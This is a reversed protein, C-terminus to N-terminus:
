VRVSHREELADTQRGLGDLLRMAAGQTDLLLRMAESQSVMADSYFDRAVADAPLYPLLSLLAVTTNSITEAVGGIGDHIERLADLQAASHEADALLERARQVSAPADTV